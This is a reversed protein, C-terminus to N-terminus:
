GRVGVRGDVFALEGVDGEEGGADAVRARDEEADRGSVVHWVARDCLVLRAGDEGREFVVLIIGLVGLFGVGVGGSWGWFEDDEGGGGELRVEYGVEGGREECYHVGCGGPHVGVQAEGLGVQAGVRGRVDLQYEDLGAAEHVIRGDAVAEARRLLLREQRERIQARPHDLRRVRRSSRPRLDSPIHANHWGPLARPDLPIHRPKQDLPAQEM